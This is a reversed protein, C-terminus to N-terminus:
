PLLYKYKTKLREIDILRGVFFKRDGAPVDTFRLSTDYAIYKGFWQMQKYKYGLLETCFMPKPM